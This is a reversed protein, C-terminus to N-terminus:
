ALTSMAWISWHIKSVFPADSYLLIRLNSPHNGPSEAVCFCHRSTTQPTGPRGAASYAVFKRFSAAHHIVSSCWLTHGGCGAGIAPPPPKWRHERLVYRSLGSHIVVDPCASWLAVAASAPRLAVLPLAVQEALQRLCTAWLAAACSQDGHVPQQTSSSMGVHSMRQRALRRRCPALPWGRERALDCARSV